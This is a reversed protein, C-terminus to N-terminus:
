RDFEILYKLRVQDPNWVIMENNLVGCTGGKVSISNYRRGKDDTGSHAEKLSRNTFTHHGRRNPQFEWGMAAEALFMFCNNERAGGWYGASYALSKSSQDSLYIGDGFMRGTTVISSGTVPPIILGKRLISLINPSRTGHWLTKVNGIENACDTLVKDAEPNSVTLRYVNKVKLRSAGHMSNKTSEYRKVIDKFEQTSSDVALITFNFLDKYADLENTDDNEKDKQSKSAAKMEENYWSVSDKLQRLFEKQEDLPNNKFFTKHWGAGTVKQPVLQLYKELRSVDSNNAPDFDELQDLLIKAERLSADSVIGLPTTLVGNTSINIKGGSREMIDHKNIKVLRDVLSILAKDQSNGGTLYHRAVDGLKNQSVQETSVNSSLVQTENYGRRMKERVIKDFGAKGSSERSTTGQSGVRGWRKTVTSTDPDLTVHYFKNNNAQASVKILMVENANVTM